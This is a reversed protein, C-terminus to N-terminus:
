CGRGADDAVGDVSLQRRGDGARIRAYRGSANTRAIAPGVGAEAGRGVLHQAEDLAVVPEEADAVVVDREVGVGIRRSTSSSYRDFAPM